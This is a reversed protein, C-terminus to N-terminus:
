PFPQNTVPAYGYGYGYAPPVLIRPPGYLAGGYYPEYSGGYQMRYFDLHYPYPRQFWSGSSVSHETQRSPLSRSLRDQRMSQDPWASHAPHAPSSWAVRTSWPVSDVFRQRQYVPLQGTIADRLAEAAPTREAFDGAMVAIAAALWLDQRRKAIRM